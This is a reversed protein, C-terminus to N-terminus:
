WRINVMADSTVTSRKHWVKCFKVLIIHWTGCCFVTVINKNWKKVVHSTDFASLAILKLIDYSSLEVFAVVENTDVASVIVLVILRSTLVVTWRTWCKIAICTSLLLQRPRGNSWLLCPGFIPPQAGKKQPPASLQAGDLVTHGPGLGLEM